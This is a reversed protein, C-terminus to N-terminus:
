YHTPAGWLGSIRGWLRSVHKPSPAAVRLVLLALAGWLSKRRHKIAAATGLHKATFLVKSRAHHYGRGYEVKLPRPGKVSGRNSHPVLVAPQVVVPKREQLLRLCMDEDEYYLFFREDFWGDRPRNAMRLLMAAGCANAVCAVAEAGPGKASWWHRIWAYNLQPKGDTGTLQPVIIAAEPWQQATQWLAQAHESQLNCDPNIMLCFPTQAAQFGRNNATGFGMNTPLAVVCAHPILKQVQAVTDDDSGNDVVTVHPWGALQRALDPVCHASNFTVIVATIQELAPCRELLASDPSKNAILTSLTM